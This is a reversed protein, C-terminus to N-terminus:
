ERYVKKNGRAVLWAFRFATGAEFSGTKVFVRFTNMDYLGRRWSGTDTKSM